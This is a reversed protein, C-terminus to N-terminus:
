MEDMRETQRVLRKTENEEMELLMQVLERAEPIEAKGALSRYLSIIQEHFDFVENRIADADLMAYHDDCVLHTTIPEHPMYDYLYTQAAGPDAQRESSVVMQEIDSEHSALYELLLAAREDQHRSACHALCKALSAHLDRSWEILDFFTKVEM